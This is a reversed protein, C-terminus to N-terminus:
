SCLPSRVTREHCARRTRRTPVQPSRATGVRRKGPSQSLLKLPLFTFPYFPLFVKKSTSRRSKPHAEIIRQLHKSSEKSTSRYSKPSAEVVRQIHKSSEKPLCFIHLFPSSSFFYLYLLSSIFFYILLYLPFSFFIHFYNIANILQEDCQRYYRQSSENCSKYHDDSAPNTVSMKPAIVRSLPPSSQNDSHKQQWHLHFSAFVQLFSPRIDKHCVVLSRKVDEQNITIQVAIELPHHLTLQTIHGKHALSTLSCVVNENVFSARRLNALGVILGMSCQLIAHRQDHKRLSRARKRTVHSHKLTAREHKCVVKLEVHHGNRYITRKIDHRTHTVHLPHQPM